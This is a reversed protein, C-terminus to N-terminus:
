GQPESIIMWDKNSGVYGVAGVYIQPPHLQVLPCVEPRIRCTLFIFKSRVEHCPRTQNWLGVNHPSSGLFCSKFMALCCVTKTIRWIHFCKASMSGRARDLTWPLRRGIQGTTPNEALMARYLRFMHWILFELFYHFPSAGGPIYIEKYLLPIQVMRLQNERRSTKFWGVRIDDEVFGAFGTVNSTVDLELLHQPRQQFAFITLFFCTANSKPHHCGTESDVQLELLLSFHQQNVLKQAFTAPM